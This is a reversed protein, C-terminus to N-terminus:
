ETPLPRSFFPESGPGKTITTADARYNIFKFPESSRVRYRRNAPVAVSSGAPVRQSGVQLAGELVHVIEDESHLHSKSDFPGNSAVTFLMIQCTKCTADAYCRADVSTARRLPSAEEKSVVHTRRGDVSAPGFPGDRPATTTKTGYQLIETPMGARVSAPVGAEIIVVGDSDCCRRDIELSGNRVYIGEDGHDEGWM